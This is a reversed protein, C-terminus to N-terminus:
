VLLLSSLRTTARLSYRAVSVRVPHRAGGRDPGRRVGAPSWGQHRARRLPRTAEWAGADGGPAASGAVPPQATPRSM